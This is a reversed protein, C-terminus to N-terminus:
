LEKHSNMQFFIGPMFCILKKRKRGEKGKAKEKIGEKRKERWGERGREQGEM